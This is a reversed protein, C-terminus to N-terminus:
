KAKSKSKEIKIIGGNAGPVAGKLLLVNNEADVRVVQLNKIHNVNGGMRGPMKKGKLVRGPYTHMGVSGGGRFSEHTGRSAPKGHFGWRKMVGAFGRGKSAGIVDVRDGEGFMDVKHPQGLAEDAVEQGRFERLLKAPPIKLKDYYGKLPKNTHKPKRDGYAVVVADYGQKDLTKREVPICREVQIVTVPVCDGKQTFIQTMGIKKGLIQEM